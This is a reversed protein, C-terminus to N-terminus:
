QSTNQSYVSSSGWVGDNVAQTDIEVVSDDIHNVFVQIRIFYFPLGIYLDRRGDM